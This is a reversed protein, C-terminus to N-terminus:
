QEEGDGTLTEYDGEGVLTQPNTCGQVLDSPSDQPPPASSAPRGVLEYCKSHGRMFERVCPNGESDVIQPLTALYARARREKWGFRADLEAIIEAGSLVKPSGSGPASNLAIKEFLHLAPHYPYLRYDVKDFYLTLPQEKLGERSKGWHFEVLPARGDPRVMQHVVDPDQAFRGSGVIEANSVKAAYGTGALAKRDHALLWTTPLRQLQSFVESALDQRNPNAGPPFLKAASDIAVLQLGEAEAWDAIIGVRAQSTPANLVKWRLEEPLVAINPVQGHYFEALRKDFIRGKTELQAIGVRLPEGAPHGLFDGGTALAELLQLTLMTKYTEEWGHLLHSGDELVIGDVTWKLPNLQYQAIREAVTRPETPAAQGQGNSGTAM